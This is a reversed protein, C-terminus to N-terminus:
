KGRENVFRCISCKGDRDLLGGCHCRVPKDEVCYRKALDCLLYLFMLGFLGFFLLARALDYNPTTM